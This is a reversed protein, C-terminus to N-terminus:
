PAGSGSPPPTRSSRRPRCWRGPPIRGPPFPATRRPARPSPPAPPSCRRNVSSGATAKGRPNILIAATGAIIGGPSKEAKVPSRPPLASRQFDNGIPRIPQKPIFLYLLLTFIHMNSCGNGGHSTPASPPYWWLHSFCTILLKGRQIFVKASSFRLFDKFFRAFDAIM